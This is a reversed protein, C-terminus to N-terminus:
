PLQRRRAARVENREDRLRRLRAVLAPEAALADERDLLGNLILYYRTETIGLGRIAAPKDAAGAKELDLIARELDTLM